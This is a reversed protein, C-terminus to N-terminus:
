SSILKKIEEIIQERYGAMFQINGVSKHGSGRIALNPLTEQINTLFNTFNFDLVSSRIILYDSSIGLTYVNGGEEELKTQHLATLLTSHAPYEYRHSFKEIELTVLKAENDLSEVTCSDLVVKLARAFLSKATPTISEILETNKEKSASIGLVNRIVEGGDFYRLGFLVYDIASTINDIRNKDFENESAIELYNKYEEGEVNDSYGSIAALQIINSDLENEAAIFKALETAMMGSTISSNEDILYPNLFTHLKEEMGDSPYHHDIAIADVGYSKCIDLAGKSDATSGVDVLIYLPLNRYNAGDDLAFSLDRVIERIEFIHNNQPIRRLIRRFDERKVGRVHLYSRIAYDVAYAAAVGDVCPSHYRIIINQNKLLATRIRKAAQVFKPKLTNYVESEIYFEQEEISKGSTQDISSLIDMFELAEQENVKDMKYIQLREKENILRFRAVVNVVTGRSITPFAVEDREGFASGQIKKGKTDTMTFLTPGNRLQFKDTIQCFLKGVTGVKDTIEEITMDNVPLHKKVTKYKSVRLPIVPVANGGRDTRVIPNRLRIPLHYGQKYKRDHPNFFGSFGCGLDVIIRDDRVNEIIGLLAKSGTLFKADLPQILQIVIPNEECTACVNSEEGEIDSGCLDCIYHFGEVCNDCKAKSFLKGKGKCTQCATGKSSGVGLNIRDSGAGQCDACTQSSEIIGNGKCEKCRLRM